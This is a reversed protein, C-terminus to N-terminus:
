LPSTAHGPDHEEDGDRDREYERDEEEVAEVPLRAPLHRQHAGAEPALPHHHVPAAEHEREQVPDGLHVHAGIAELDGPGPVARDDGLVPQPHVHVELGEDPHRGGRLPHRRRSLGQGALGEPGGLQRVEDLALDDVGELRHRGAVRHVAQVLAPPAVGLLYPLEELLAEGGVPEGHLRDGEGAEVLRRKM